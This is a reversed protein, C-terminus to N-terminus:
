PTRRIHQATKLTVTKMSEDSIFWLEWFKPWYHTTRTNWQLNAPKVAPTTYTKSPLRLESHSRTSIGRWSTRCNLLLRKKWTNKKKKNIIQTHLFRKIEKKLPPHTIKKKRSSSVLIKSQTVLYESRVDIYYWTFM